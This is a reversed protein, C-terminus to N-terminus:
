KIYMYVPQTIHWTELLLSTIITVHIKSDQILIQLAYKQKERFTVSTNCLGIKICTYM